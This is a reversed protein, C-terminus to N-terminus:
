LLAQSLIFPSLRLAGIYSNANGRGADSRNGVDESLVM